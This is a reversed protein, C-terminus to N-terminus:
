LFVFGPGPIVVDGPFHPGLRPFLTLCHVWQSGGMRGAMGWGRVSAQCAQSQALRQPGSLM